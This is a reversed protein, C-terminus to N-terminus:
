AEAEPPLAPAKTRFDVPRAIPSRFAKGDTPVTAAGDFM